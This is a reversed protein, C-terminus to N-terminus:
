LTLYTSIWPFTQENYIIFVRTFYWLELMNSALNFNEFHLDVELTLTVPDFHQYGCFPRTQLFVWTFYSLELGWQEFNNAVNSNEFYYTFSWPWPWLKFFTPILPFTKYIPNFNWVSNWISYCVKISHCFSLCSM